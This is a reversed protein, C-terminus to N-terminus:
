SKQEDPTEKNKFLNSLKMSDFNMKPKAETDIPKTAGQNIVNFPYYRALTGLAKIWYGPYFGVEKAKPMVECFNEWSAFWQEIILLAEKRSLSFHQALADVFDRSQKVAFSVSKTSKSLDTDIGHKVSLLMLYARLKEGSWKHAQELDYQSKGSFVQIQEKMRELRKGSAPRTSKNREARKEAKREIRRSAEIFESSNLADKLSKPDKRMKHMPPYAVNDNTM